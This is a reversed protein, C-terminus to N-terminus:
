SALPAPLVTICSPASPDGEPTRHLVARTPEVALGAPSPASLLRAVGDVILCYGNGQPAAWVLSVGPQDAVNASSHRGATIMLEGGSWDVRVAVVHPRGEAGVTVLYAIPGLEDIHEALAVQAEPTTM